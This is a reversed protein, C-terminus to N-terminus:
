VSNNPSFIKKIYESPKLNLIIIIKQKHYKLYHTKINQVYRIFNIVIKM